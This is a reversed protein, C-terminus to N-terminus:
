ESSGELNAALTFASKTLCIVFGAFDKTLEFSVECRFTRFSTVKEGIKFLPEELRDDVPLESNVDEVGDLMDLLGASRDVELSAETVRPSFRIFM